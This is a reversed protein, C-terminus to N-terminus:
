RSKLYLNKNFMRFMILFTGLIDVGAQHYISNNQISTAKYNNIMKTQHANINLIACMEINVVPGTYVLSFLIMM